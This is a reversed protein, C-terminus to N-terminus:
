AQCAKGDLVDDNAEDGEWRHVRGLSLAIHILTAQLPLDNVVRPTDVNYTNGGHM